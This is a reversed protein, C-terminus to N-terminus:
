CVATNNLVASVFSRVSVNSTSSGDASTLFVAWMGTPGAAAAAEMLSQNMSMDVDSSVHRIDCVVKEKTCLTTLKSLALRLAAINGSV